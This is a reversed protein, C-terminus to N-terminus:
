MLLKFGPLLICRIILPFAKDYCLDRFKVAKYCRILVDSAWTRVRTKQNVKPCKCEGELLGMGSVLILVLHLEM